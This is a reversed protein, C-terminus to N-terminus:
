KAWQRTFRLWKLTLAKLFRLQEMKGSYASQITMKRDYANCYAYPFSFLLLSHCLGNPKMSLPRPTCFPFITQVGDRCFLFARCIENFAAFATQHKLLLVQHLGFATQTDFIYLKNM